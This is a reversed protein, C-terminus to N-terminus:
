KFNKYKIAIAKMYREDLDGSRGTTVEGLLIIADAGIKAAEEKLRLVVDERRSFIYGKADLSLEGIEVYEKNVTKSRFVEVSTSAPYIKNDYRIFDVSYCGSFLMSFILLVYINRLEM